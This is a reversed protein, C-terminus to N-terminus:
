VVHARVFSAATSKAWRHISRMDPLFPPLGLTARLVLGGVLAGLFQEALSEVDKKRMRKESVLEQLYKKLMQRGKGPGKEWFALALEPFDRAEAIVVQHLRQTEPNFMAALIQEGFLTLAREPDREGEHLSLIELLSGSRREILAAFLDAKSPFLQYLTEKSAGAKRAIERTSARAFGRELFLETAADLLAETRGEEEGRRPRGINTRRLPKPEAKM